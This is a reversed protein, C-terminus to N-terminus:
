PRRSRASRRSGGAPYRVLRAALRWGLMCCGLFVVAVVVFAVATGQGAVVRLVMGAAVTVATVVLGARAGAPDHGPAAVLWGLGLGAAFPWLTSVVGAAAL